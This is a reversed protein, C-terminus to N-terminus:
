DSDDSDSNDSWANGSESEENDSSTAEVNDKDAPTPICTFSEPVSFGIQNLVTKSM